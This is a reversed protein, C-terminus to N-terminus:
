GTRDRLAPLDDIRGEDKLKKYIAKGSDTLEYAIEEVGDIDLSIEAVYGLTLLSPRFGGDKSNEFAARKVPDSYGVARAALVNTKNGILSSIKAKTLPGEAKALVCLVRIQPLSPGRRNPRRGRRIGIPPTISVRAPIGNTSGHLKQRGPNSNSNGNGNSINTSGNDSTSTNTSANGTRSINGNSGNVVVNTSAVPPTDEALVFGRGGCTPCTHKLSTHRETTPMRSLLSQKIDPKVEHDKATDTSAQQTSGQQINSQQINSQQVKSQRAAQRTARYKGWPKPVQAALVKRTLVPRPDSISLGKAGKLRALKLLSFTSFNSLEKETFIREASDEPLSAYQPFQPQSRPDQTM